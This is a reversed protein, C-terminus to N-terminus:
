LGTQSVGYKAQKATFGEFVLQDILGSRSFATYDLYNQASKAAQENWDVTVREVAWTADKTSYEEFELQKILGTRSFATYELYNGAARLANQQSVTGAEAEAKASAEAEAKASAEAEAKERAEAKKNAEAEAKASAEAEAKEIAKASSEAEASEKAEAATLATSSAVAAAAPSESPTATASATSAPATSPQEGNGGCSAILIALVVFAGVGIGIKNGKGLPKKPEPIAPTSFKAASPNGVTATARNPATATPSSFNPMVSMYLYPNASFEEPPMALAGTENDIWMPWGVPPSGWAKEPVWTPTPQFEAPLHQLWHPPPNFRISMVGRIVIVLTRLEWVESLEEELPYVPECVILRKDRGTTM